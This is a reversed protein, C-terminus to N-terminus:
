GVDHLTQVRSRSASATRSKHEDRVWGKSRRWAMQFVYVCSCSYNVVIHVSMGSFVNIGQCYSEVAINEFNPGAGGWFRKAVLCRVWRFCRLLEAQGM